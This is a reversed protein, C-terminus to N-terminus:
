RKYNTAKFSPSLCKATRYGHFSWALNRCSNEEGFGFSRARIRLEAFFHGVVQGVSQRVLLHFFHLVMYTAAGRARHKFRIHDVQLGRQPCHGM